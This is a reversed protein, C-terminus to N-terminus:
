QGTLQGRIAGGTFDSTHVNVYFSGPNDIIDDVLSDDANVCGNSAGTADPATLTVVPDGAVGTAGTHIHAAVAPLVLNSATIDWCVQNTDDNLTIEATGAGDTDGPGPVEAAGTMTANLTVIDAGNDEDDDCGLLAAGLLAAAAIYTRM